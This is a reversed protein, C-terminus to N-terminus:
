LLLSHCTVSASDSTSDGQKSILSSAILAASSAKSALCSSARLVSASDRACLRGLDAARLCSPWQWGPATFPEMLKLVPTLGADALGQARLGQADSHQKLSCFTPELTLCLVSPRLPGEVGVSVDNMLCKILANPGVFLLRWTHSDEHIYHISFPPVSLRRLEPHLLVPPYQQQSKHVTDNSRYHRRREAKALAAMSASIISALKVTKALNAEQLCQQNLQGNAALVLSLLKQGTRYM